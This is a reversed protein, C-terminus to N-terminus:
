VAREDSLERLNAELHDLHRGYLRQQFWRTAYVIVIQMLGGGIFLGAGFSLLKTSFAEGRGLARGVYYGYMLVMTWPGAWLALRYYFRLMERIGSCLRGLNERVNTDAQMMQGLM